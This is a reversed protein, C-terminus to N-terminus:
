TFTLVESQFVKSNTWECNLSFIKLFKKILFKLDMNQLKWQKQGNKVNNKPEKLRLWTKKSDIKM